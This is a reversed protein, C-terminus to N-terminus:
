MKFQEILKNLENSVEAQNKTAEVVQNVGETAEIINGLINNSNEFTVQTSFAISQIVKSIEEVTSNIEESMSAIDESMDSVFQADKEYNDGTQVLLDYDGRVDKDVFELVDQSNLSINKFANQVKEIVGKISNVNNSSQEALKRIEDAVVAFGRGQEGARAAEIAANLALLNTQEAIQAISDAMIKVEEVVKGEEIAKMINEQKNDYLKVAYERSAFGKDRITEARDRIKMSEGSGDTAKTSLQNVGANIEEVSASVEEAIASSEQTEKVIDKTFSNISQMKSNIDNVTSYLESSMRNMERSQNMINQILVKINDKANNLAKSLQGFEDKSHLNISQSLDGNGIAEAFEVGLKISNGIYKSIILGIIFALIVTIAITAYMILSIKNYIGLNQINTDEADKENMDILEGLLKSMEDRITLVSNWRETAEGQRNQLSLDILEQRKERYIKLNEKFKGWKEKEKEALCDKEYEEILETNKETLTGINKARESKTKSDDKESVFVIGQLESRIELLNENISHLLNISRLNYGYMKGSNSSMTKTGYVGLSGIVGIILTLLLYSAILKTKIKLNKVLEM